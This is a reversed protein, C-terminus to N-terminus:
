NRRAKLQRIMEPVVEFLDGVIGYSAVDFIPAHPDMNIAVITDSSQMGVLHQVAGSVGIAMYLKPAVTKGTQGVQHAYSIWGADVAGRSAGVAANLLDALERIIAFHRGEQLGRGGTIIVDAEALRVKESVEEVIELLTTPSTIQSWDWDVPVIEGSCGPRPLGKKMVKPRVTAMQPRKRPCIITAMINGGFAPRTQLLLRKESDISLETCDATLGTGIQTAVKPIFSRGISTAGALLIEPRFTRIIRSLVEGYLEDIFGELSPHDAVIVRDAGYEILSQASSSLDNGILAALLPVKLIDALERGKHLLEYSVEAVKGLRREAYIMVGCYDEPRRGGELSPVFIAGEPCEEACAGCLTCQDNVLAKGERMELANFPCVSICIECGICKEIDIQTELAM